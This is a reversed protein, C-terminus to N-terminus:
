YFRPYDGGKSVWVHKEISICHDVKVGACFKGMSEISVSSLQSSDLIDSIYYFIKLIINDLIRHNKYISAHTSYSLM